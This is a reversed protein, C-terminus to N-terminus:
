KDGEYSKLNGYHSGIEADAVLPVTFWDFNLGPFWEPGYTTPLNEMVDKCLTVLDDIEGPYVDFVISDHVTNVMMSRFEYEHMLNDIVILACLLIDSAASQIPMNVAEREARSKQSYNSDNIYPVYRRRGFPSEVYGLERARVIMKTKYDLVEPFAYYYKDVLNCAETIPIGYLKHLTHEDGGFLLTWNVWKARYRLPKWENVSHDERKVKFLMETVFSHVDIGDAFAQAMSACNALSAMTRLEMGSYDISCVCGEDGDMVATIYDDPHDDYDEFVGFTYTFINKVPLRELLTGPEKEPTPINQLNPQRSALRGTVTGHLLYNSNVRGDGRPWREKAPILYTSLMKGLLKFMRLREIFPVEDAYEKILDWKTSPAGTDTFGLPKLNYYRRDFLIEKVQVHSNPNFDKGRKDVYHIVHRDQCLLEFYQEQEQEYSQIYSRVLASDIECGNMEMYAISLSAPTLLQEHLVVQLPLLDKCLVEHLEITAIADKLAYPTMIELPVLGFDGGKSPNAEKHAELHDGLEKDYDYMGLHRGALMKLGHRGPQSDIIYSLLMTDGVVGDVWINLLEAAAIVDFKINHGIKKIDPDELICKISPITYGNVEVAWSQKNYRTAFSVMVVHQNVGFVDLSTVESDYAVIYGVSSADNIRIRMKEADIATKVFTTSYGSSADIIVEDNYALDFAREIDTAFDGLVLPNRLVYAPHFTPVYIIGDREVEVGRWRTIGSEGLVAKLPINGLLIVVIPDFDVLEKQLFVENCIGIQKKSPTKNNPPRCKVVNTYVIELDDIFEDVVGRILRGSQGVFPVGQEDEHRGPAEGIVLIDCSDGPYGSRKHWDAAIYSNKCHKYLGCEACRVHQM